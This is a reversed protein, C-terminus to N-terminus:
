GIKRIGGEYNSNGVNVEPSGSRNILLCVVGTGVGPISSTSPTGKPYKREGVPSGKITM